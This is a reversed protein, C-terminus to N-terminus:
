KKCDELCPLTKIDEIFNDKVQALCCFNGLIIDKIAEYSVAFDEPRMPMKFGPSHEFIRPLDEIKGNFLPFRKSMQQLSTEDPQPPADFGRRVLFHRVTENSQNLNLNQLTADGFMEFVREILPSSNSEITNLILENAESATFSEPVCREFFDHNGFKTCVSLFEFSKGKSKFHDAMTALIVKSLKILAIMIPTTGDPASKFFLEYDFSKHHMIMKLLKDCGFYVAYWIPSPNGIHTEVVDNRILSEGIELLNNKCISLFTENKRDRFYARLSEMGGIDPLIFKYFIKTRREPYTHGSSILLDFLLFRDHIIIKNM